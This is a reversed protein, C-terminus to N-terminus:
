SLSGEKKLQKSWKECERVIKHPQIINDMYLILYINHYSQDGNIGSTMNWEM